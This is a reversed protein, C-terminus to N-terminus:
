STAAKLAKDSKHAKKTESTLADREVQLAAEAEAVRKTHTAVQSEFRSALYGIQM